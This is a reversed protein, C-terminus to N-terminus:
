ESRAVAQMKSAACDQVYRVYTNQSHAALGAWAREVHDSQHKRTTETAGSRADDDSAPTSSAVCAAAAARAAAASEAAM